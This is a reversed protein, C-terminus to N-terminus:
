QKTAHRLWGFSGICSRRTLEAAGFERLDKEM